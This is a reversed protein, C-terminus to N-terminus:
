RTGAANDALREIPGLAALFDDVAPRPSIGDGPAAASVLVAVGHQPGGLLRAKATEWKVTYPNGTVVGGVRYFTAVDRITGFSAIRDIRGGPPPSGGGTWAWRGEPAVAGQGYGVLERGEDQRAFLIVALTVTRGSGDRYYTMWQRDAGTFHPRWQRGPARAVQQWGKVGPLVFTEPVRASGAAALLQSWGIPLAAIALAACATGIALSGRSRPVDDAQLQAPDFWPDTPKRDFFPWGAAMVLMIVLAFFIWGYFVHDFGDAFDTSGTLSAIAITGWARVGNALIPIVIAAALFLLRRKWSSFCLNAVLAAYAVMAVLFKVGSCAEAVEFAGVPTTIFVGEMHAPIGVLNLLGMCMEATLTQMAPVLEEGVPLLFFAFFLPFAIGRAVAYGLCAIAIGQLMLILALHRASAVGGAYGLLWLLAAAGVLILAPPWAVPRLQRLEPLRQWILWGIIPPIMVCHAFTSTELWFRAMSAADNWFLLLLTAAAVALTMLHLRWAGILPRSGKRDIPLAATM